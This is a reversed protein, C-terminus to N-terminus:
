IADPNMKMDSSLWQFSDSNSSIIVLTCASPAAKSVFDVEYIQVIVSITGELSYKM